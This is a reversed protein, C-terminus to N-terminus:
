RRPEFRLPLEKWGNIFILDERELPVDEAGLDLAGNFLVDLAVQAEARALTAGFCHHFGHGFALHANDQRGLDLRDPDPFREPDRNASGLLAYITEGRRVLTGRLVVDELAMRGVVRVPTDYRLLEEVGAAVLAPDGRLRRLQEPQRLLALVGNGILHTTTVHGAELMLICNALLEHGAVPRDSRDAVLAGVLGEVPQRRCREAFEAFYAYLRGVVRRNVRLTGRPVVDFIGALQLVLRMLRERDAPPVGLIEAIVSFTLPRAFGGILEIRGTKRARDLLDEAVARITPRVADIAGRGFFPTFLRRLRAHDPPNSTILIDRRLRAVPGLIWRAISRAPCPPHGFRPDGLVAAADDYRSVFWGLDTRHVPDTERLRRYVPHPDARFGPQRPDFRWAARSAARSGRTFTPM